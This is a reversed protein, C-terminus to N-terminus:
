GEDGERGGPPRLSLLLHLVLPILAALLLSRVKGSVERERRVETRIEELDRRLSQDSRETQLALDDLSEQLRALAAEQADQSDRVQQLASGRGSESRRLVADPLPQDGPDGPPETSQVQARPPAPSEARPSEAPADEDPSPRREFFQVYLAIATATLAIAALAVRWAPRKSRKRM